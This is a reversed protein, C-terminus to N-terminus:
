RSFTYLRCILLVKARPSNNTILGSIKWHLPWHQVLLAVRIQCHNECEKGGVNPYRSLRVIFTNAYLVQFIKNKSTDQQNPKETNQLQRRLM